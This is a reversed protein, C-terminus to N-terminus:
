ISEKKSIKLVFSVDEKALLEFIAEQEPFRAFTRNEPQFTIVKVGNPYNGFPILELNKLDDGVVALDWRCNAAIRVGAREGAMLEITHTGPGYTQINSKAVAAVKMSPKTPEVRRAPVYFQKGGVYINSEVQLVVQYLEEGTADDKVQGIVKAKVTKKEDSRRVMQFEGCSREYLPTNIPINIIEAERAHFQKNLSSNTWWSNATNVMGGVQVPMLFRGFLLYALVLAMAYGPIKTVIGAWVSFISFFLAVGTWVLVMQITMHRVGIISTTAGVFALTMSLFVLPRLLKRMEASVPAAVRNILPVGSSVAGIIQAAEDGLKFTVFFIIAALYSGVIVMLQLKLLWGLLILTLCTGILILEVAIFRRLERNTIHYVGSLLAWAGILLDLLFDYIPQM